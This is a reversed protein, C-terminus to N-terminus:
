VPKVSGLSCDEYFLTKWNILWHRETLWVRSSRDAGSSSNSCCRSSSVRYMVEVMVVDSTIVVIAIVVVVIM